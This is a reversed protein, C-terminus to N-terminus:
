TELVSSIVAPVTFSYGNINRSYELRSKLDFLLGGFFEILNKSIEYEFNLIIQCM